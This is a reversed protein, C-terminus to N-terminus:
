PAIETPPDRPSFQDPQNIRGGPPPSLPQGSLLPDDTEQMWDDLRQRMQDSVQTMGPRAVVNDSEHPGFVLDYLQERDPERDSGAM